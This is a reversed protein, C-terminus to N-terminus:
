AKSRGDNVSAIAMAQRTPRTTATQTAKGVDEPSSGTHADPSSAQQDGGADQSSDESMWRGRM